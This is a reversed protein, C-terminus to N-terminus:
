AYGNTARPMRSHMDIRMCGCVPFCITVRLGVQLDVKSPTIHNAPPFPTYKRKAAKPAVVPPPQAPAGGGGGAASAANAAKAAAGAAAAAAAAAARAGGVPADPTKTKKLRKFKPLFRDWSENALTPDQAGGGGVCVCVWVWVCVCMCVCVYARVFVVGYCWWSLQCCGGEAGVKALEAKIMLAKINYIPHVNAMCDLVVQRVAKLGKHPGMASVTNGQVLVYCNTLLEIAKLTAGDPGILRQRRKVFREKNRVLSNIKIIDVFMGDECARLAQVPSAPAVM